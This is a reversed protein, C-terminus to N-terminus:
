EMIDAAWEGRRGLRCYVTISRILQGTAYFRPAAPLGARERRRVTEATNVQPSLPVRGDHLAEILDEKIRRAIEAGRSRVTEDTAAKLAYLKPVWRKYIGGDRKRRPAEDYMETFKRDEAEKIDQLYSDLEQGVDSYPLVNVLYDDIFSVGGNLGVLIEYLRRFTMNDQGYAGRLTRNVRRSAPFKYTVQWDFSESAGPFDVEAEYRRPIALPLSDQEWENPKVLDSYDYHRM